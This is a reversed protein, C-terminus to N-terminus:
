FPRQRELHVFMYETYPNGPFLSLLRQKEASFFTISAELQAALAPTVTPMIHDM